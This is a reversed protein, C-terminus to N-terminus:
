PLPPSVTTVDSTNSPNATTNGTEVSDVRGEIRETYLDNGLAESTTLFPNVFSSTVGEVKTVSQTVKEIQESEEVTMGRVGGPKTEVGVGEMEIVENQKLNMKSGNNLKVEVIGNTVVVKGKGGKFSVWFKTGKASVSAQPTQVQYSTIKKNLKQISTFISGENLFVMASRKSVKDNRKVVALEKIQLRAEDLVMATIGPMPRFTVSSEPAIIFLGKSPILRGPVLPFSEEDALFRNGEGKVDVVLSMIKPKIKVSRKIELPFSVPDKKSSDITQGQLSYSCFIAGVLSLSVFLFRM